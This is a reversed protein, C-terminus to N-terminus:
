SAEGTAKAIAARIERQRLIYSEAPALKVGFAAQYGDPNWHRATERGSEYANALGRGASDPMAAFVDPFSCAVIAWDCDEGYWGDEQRWAEHVQANREASLKYGLKYGGYFTIGPAAPETYDSRGWPTQM